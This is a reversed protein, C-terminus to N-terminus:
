RFRWDARITEMFAHLADLGTVNDGANREMAYIVTMLKTVDRFHLSGSFPFRKLVSLGTENNDLVSQLMKTFDGNGEYTLTISKATAVVAMHGFYDPNSFNLTIANREESCIGQSVVLSLAKTVKWHVPSTSAVNDDGLISTALSHSIRMSGGWGSVVTKADYNKMTSRVQTAKHCKFCFARGDDTDHRPCFHKCALEAVENPLQYGVGGATPYPSSLRFRPSGIRGRPSRMGPPPSRMGPPPSRLDGRSLSTFGTPRYGSSSAAWEM